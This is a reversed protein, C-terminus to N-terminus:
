KKLLKNALELGANSLSTVMPHTTLTTYISSKREESTRHPGHIEGEKKPITFLAEQPNKNPAKKHSIQTKFVAEQIKDTLGPSISEMLSTVKSPGGVYVDRQPTVACNLIAEAVVMPDYTPGPLVPTGSRLRNAAHESFPTNISTPRILSVQIPLKDDMLEIRLADTYAKIAQKTASYMGLLPMARDSVESGLNIIVGGQDKLTEVAIRCGHRVGWFNVDFLRKEEKVDVDILKGYIATGANNIWTDIHGFEAVAKDRAKLLQDYKSVDAKVCMSTGGFAHIEKCINKLEQLNRSCIIVKAGRQAALKATALGIGSSAGTIFIVQQSIPKPVFNM